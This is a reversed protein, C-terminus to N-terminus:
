VPLTTVQADSKRKGNDGQYTGCGDYYTGHIEEEPRWGFGEGYRMDEKTSGGDGGHV